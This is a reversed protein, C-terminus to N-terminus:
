HADHPSSCASETKNLGLELEGIVKVMVMVPNQRRGDFEGYFNREWMGFYLADETIAGIVEKDGGISHGSLCV